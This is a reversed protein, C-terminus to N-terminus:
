LIRNRLLVGSTWRNSWWKVPGTLTLTNVTGGGAFDVRADPVAVALALGLQGHGLRSLGLPGTM